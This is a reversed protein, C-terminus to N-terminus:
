LGAGYIAYSYRGETDSSVTFAAELSNKSQETFDFSEIRITNVYPAWNVELTSNSKKDYAMQWQGAMANPIYYCVAKEGREATLDSSSLTSGNPAIFSVPPEEVDYYLTVSMNSQEEINFINATKTEAGASLSLALLTMLMVALVTFIKFHNKAM